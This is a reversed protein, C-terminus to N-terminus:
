WKIGGFSIQRDVAILRLKRLLSKSNWLYFGDAHPLIRRRGAELVFEHAVANKAYVRAVFEWGDSRREAVLEVKIPGAEFQLHRVHGADIDRLGVAATAWSDFGVRGAIQRSKSSDDFLLPIAHWRSRARDPPALLERRVSRVSAGRGNGRVETLRLKRTRKSKTESTSLTKTKRRKPM